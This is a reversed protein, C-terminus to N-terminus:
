HSWEPRLLCAPDARSARRAPVYSACTTVLFLILLTALSTSVDAVALGYLFSSLYTTLAIQVSLGIAVGVLALLLSEGVVLRIISRRDAGVAMRVGIEERRQAARYSGVGYIGVAALVLSAAAFANLVVSLFRPYAVADALAENMTSIDLIAVNSEVRMIEDRIRPIIAAPDENIRIALNISLRAAANSRTEYVTEKPPTEPSTRVDGVVGVVEARRPPGSTITISRGIPDQGGFAKQALLASVIAVDRREIDDAPDFYRGRVLPVRMAEFYGPVVISSIAGIPPEGMPTVDTTVGVEFMQRFTTLPLGKAAGVAQVGPLRELRQRLQQYYVAVDPGVQSAGWGPRLYITLIGSPQFGVDIRRLDILTQAMLGASTVLVAAFAAEAAVLGALLRGRQRDVTSRAGQGIWQAPGLRLVALAPALGSLIGVAITASLVWLWVRGDVVAFALRPLSAPAITLLLATTMGTMILGALGGIMALAASESISDRVLRGKTSGLALRVHFEHRRGVNRALLVSSVNTCALVLLLAVGSALVLLQDRTRGIIAENLSVLRVQWGANAHQQLPELRSALVDVEAQAQRHSHGERLRCFTQDRRAAPNPMPWSPTWVDAPLGDVHHFSPPMVGIIEYPAGDFRLSQRLVDERGGFRRQWLGHSIVVVRSPYRDESLFTRGLVPAVGLVAFFNTSVPVSVFRVLADGDFRDEPQRFYTGIMECAALEQRLGNLELESLGAASVDHRTVVIRLLDDPDRFPLPRFIVADIATFVTASICIGMAVTLVVVASVRRSAGTLLLASRLHQLLNNM